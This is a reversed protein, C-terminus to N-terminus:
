ILSSVIIRIKLACFQAIKWPPKSLYKKIKGTWQLCIQIVTEEKYPATKPCRTVFQVCCSSRGQVILDCRQCVFSNIPEVMINKQPLPPTRYSGFCLAFICWSRGFFLYIKYIIIYFDGFMCTLLASM